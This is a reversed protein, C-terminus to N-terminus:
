FRGTLSLGAHERSATPVLAVDHARPRHRAQYRRHATEYPGLVMGAVILAGSLYFTSEWGGVRCADTDCAAWVILRSAGWLGVGGGFLAWGLGRVLPLRVRPRAHAPLDHFQEDHARLRGRLGMGGGLLGASVLLLPTGVTAGGLMSPVACGGGGWCTEPHEVARIARITGGLRFASGIGGVLAAGVFMGIGRARPPPPTAVIPQTPAVVPPAVVPPTVVPPAADTPGAETPAADTPAAEPPRAEPPAAETPAAEPPGAEPPGAEPPAAEPPAAEPPGAEPPGAESAVPPAQPSAGPEPASAPPAAHASAVTVTALLVSALLRPGM